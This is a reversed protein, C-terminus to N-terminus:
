AASWERAEASLGLEDFALALAESPAQLAFRRGSASFEKSAALVLQIAPTGVREVDSGELVVGGTSAIAGLLEEKLNPLAGLDLQSPLKIQIDSM